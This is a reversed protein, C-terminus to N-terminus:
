RSPIEAALTSVVASGASWARPALEARGTPAPILTLIAWTVAIATASISLARLSARWGTAIGVLVLFTAMGAALGVRGSHIGNEVGSRDFPHGLLNDQCPFPMPGM